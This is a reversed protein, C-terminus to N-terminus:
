PLYVTTKDNSIKFNIGLPTLTSTLATELDDHLFSGTFLRNTDTTKHEFNINYQLQLAKLVKHLPVAKFTSIGNLWNPKTLSTKESKVNSNHLVIRDNKHLINQIRLDKSEFKVTGEFCDLEFADTKTKVNFITGLVSVTGYNTSVSFNKSKKINFYAEGNLAVTKNQLWFFRKHTLKSGANLNVTSGDPLTIALKKGYPTEYSITSTYLGFCGIILAISAAISYWLTRPKKKSTNFSIKTKTASLAQSISSNAPVSFNQSEKNIRYFLKYDKSAKFAELEETTLEGAVWRALFTDDNDYLKM